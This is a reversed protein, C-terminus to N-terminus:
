RFPNSCKIDAALTKDTLTKLFAILDKKEQESFRFGGNVVQLGKNPHEKVGTSYQDIVQELTNFRGDHMYPATLEVNRLIPMKFTAMDKALGTKEGIGNDRYVIDLGNNSEIGENLGTNDAVLFTPV